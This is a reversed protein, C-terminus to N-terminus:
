KGASPAASAPTYRGGLAAQTIDLQVTFKWGGVELAANTVLPSGLGVIKALADVYTAVVSKSTGLGIVTLKGLRPEGSLTATKAAPVGSTDLMAGDLGTVTVGTPAAALVQTLVRGWGLDRGFLESLQGAIAQGQAQTNILDGFTHQQRTLSQADAQATALNDRADATQFVALAYWALLVVLVGALASFVVRRIRRGQRLEVIEAPLLDAAISLLRLESAPYTVADPTLITTM